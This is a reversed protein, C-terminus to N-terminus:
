INNISTFPILINFNQVTKINTAVPGHQTFQVVNDDETNWNKDWKM